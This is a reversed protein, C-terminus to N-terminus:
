RVNAPRARATRRRLELEFNLEAGVLVILGSVFFWLMLVILGALTGYTAGFSGFTDTYASLALTALLWLVAAFVAGPSIWRTMRWPRDPALKYLAGLGLVVLLLVAPWRTLGLVQTATDGMGVLDLIEPLFGVAAAASLGFIIIGLTVALASLRLVLFKRTEPEGYAYNIGTILAKTGASASWLAAVITLVTVVSLSSSSSEVIGTLENGIFTATEEPLVESLEAIQEELVVPDAVQAYITVAAIAAPFVALLAYYSLGAAILITGHEKMRALVAKLLGTAGALSTPLNSDSTAPTAAPGVDPPSTIPMPRGDAPQTQQEVRRTVVFAAAGVALAGWFIEVFRKM